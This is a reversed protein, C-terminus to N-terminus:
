TRFWQQRCSTRPVATRSVWCLSPLVSGFGNREPGTRDLTHPPTPPPPACIWLGLPPNPEGRSSRPGVGRNPGTSGGVGRCRGLTQLIRSTCLAAMKVGSVSLPAPREASVSGHAHKQPAETRGPGVWVDGWEAGPRDRIRVVQHSKSLVSRRRWFIAKKLGRGLVAWKPDRSKIKDGRQEPRCLGSDAPGTRATLQVGGWLQM